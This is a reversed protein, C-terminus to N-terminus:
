ANSPEDATDTKVSKGKNHLHLMTGRPFGTTERVVLQTAIPYERKQAPTQEVHARLAMVAEKALDFCSMQITTLPPITMQTIHINDFGIISLDDPVRLGARYAKQLLGIATMDNSCMVATPLGAGSLLKEAAAIGGEM